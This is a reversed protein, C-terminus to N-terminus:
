MCKTLCGFVAITPQVRTSDNQDPSMAAVGIPRADWQEAADFTEMCCGASAM